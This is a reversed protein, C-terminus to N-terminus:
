YDLMFLLKVSRHIMLIFKMVMFWNVPEQAILLAFLLTNPVKLDQYNQTKLQPKANWMVLPLLKKSWLHDQQPDSRLLNFVMRIPQTM